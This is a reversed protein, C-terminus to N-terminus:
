FLVGLACVEVISTQSTHFWGLMGWINGITRRAMDSRYQINSSFGNMANKLINSVSMNRWRGGGCGGLISLYKLGHRNMEHWSFFYFSFRDNESMIQTRPVFHIASRSLSHTYLSFVYVYDNSHVSKNAFCHYSLSHRQIFQYEHCMWLYYPHIQLANTYEIRSYMDMKPYGKMEQTWLIGNDLWIAYIGGNHHRDAADAYIGSTIYCLLVLFSILTCAWKEGFISKTYIVYM